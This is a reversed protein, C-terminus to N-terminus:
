LVSASGMRVPTQWQVMQWRLVPEAKPVSIAKGEQLMATVPVSVVQVSGPPVEPRGICRRNQGFHPEGIRSSRAPPSRLMM